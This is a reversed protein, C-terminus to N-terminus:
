SLKACFCFVALRQQGLFGGLGGYFIQKPTFTCWVAPASPSFMLTINFLFCSLTFPRLTTGAANSPFVGTIECMRAFSEFPCFSNMEGGSQPQIRHEPRPECREPLQQRGVGSQSNWLPGGDPGPQEDGFVWCLSVSHLRFSFWSCGCNLSEFVETWYM